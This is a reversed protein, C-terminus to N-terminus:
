FIESRGRRWPRFSGNESDSCRDGCGAGGALAPAGDPRGTGTGCLARGYRAPEARGWRPQRGARGTGEAGRAVRGGGAPAGDAKRTGTRPDAAGAPHEAVPVPADKILTEPHVLGQDFAMAYVFPKLASGPSRLARTMDVFDQAGQGAGYSPAGVLARIEGSHHDAVVIAASVQEPLGFVARRALTEIQRQLAADITTVHSRAFPDQGRAHDALHPALRPFRHMKRPVDARPTQPTNQAHDTPAPPAPAPAPVPQPPWAVSGEPGALPALAARAVRGAVRTLVRDRATRAAAPFRDPRRTEPSQPLAILLAAEAPDLRTPEKGFWSLSAARVGEVPGGYPAHTLYLELIQAKTLRRELALALRIQRWKGAWRGTGSNELLRAVQMTLTSAGSVAEGQWLAQAGARAMARLDVGSHTYFRKDEYAILMAVFTPDVGRATVALRIRGNEVPFARLLSGDRALVEVSTEHLLPPLRTQAVWRDFGDRLGAGLGLVLVLGFLGYRAIV